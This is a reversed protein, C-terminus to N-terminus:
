IGTIQALNPRNHIVPFKFAIFYGSSDVWDDIAPHTNFKEPELRDDYGQTELANTLNPCKDTNIFFRGHSLLGNYSNIRDRVAPNTPNYQLQYGAQRIMGIDSQSANTRSAKGSADPYIIIKKNEYRTLNNIFDQTDHSVFEDVAIPVNNDIVFVVACTGGINFDLGIHILTDHENLVRQVHHKKRDFFHYVKNKNLSVFDGLLYLEALVPDYNALIQEAYDKPLFPNSYTSAKYLVYGKQQLKVWKHYVFGNIGNDPTTVVGITNKGEFKQRTRETIKRWVLAAKDMPLTDIEDVISHAVEFSVIKSPNDYSRFIIFGYGAVDIKFESKNVHFKLGMMALDEEVGPMARLRLLDYTPLFIGVNVGKNQLLLLVARMTGARTKGSGLGGVIAPYPEESFVFQRQPLTLPIDPM